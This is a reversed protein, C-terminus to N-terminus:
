DYIWGLSQVGHIWTFVPSDFQLRWTGNWGLYNTNTITNFLQIGQQQQQSAWPEPYVPCYVGRWVFRQDVVGNISIQQIEIAQDADDHSKSQYSIVLDHKGPRLMDQVKVVIRDSIEGDFWSEGDLDVRCSPIKTGHPKLMVDCRFLHRDIVM